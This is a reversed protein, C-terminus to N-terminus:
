TTGKTDDDHLDADADADAEIDDPDSGGAADLDADDADDPDEAEDDADEDDELDADDDDELDADDDAGGPAPPGGPVRGFEVQVRANRVQGLEIEHVTGDVDVRASASDTEVLRGTLTQGDVLEVAVLRRLARRWHRPATLPRDVGPSTVELVYPQTGFVDAEDLAASVSRSVEAVVDLDVGADGDVVVRVVSRRGAPSIGVDELDLGAARVVPDAVRRVDERSTGAM